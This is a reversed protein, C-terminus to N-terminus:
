LTADLDDDTGAVTKLGDGNVLVALGDFFVPARGTVPRHLCLSHSDSGSVQQEGRCIVTVPYGSM